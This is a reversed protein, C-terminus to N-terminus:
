ILNNIIKSLEIESLVEPLVMGDPVKPSYIIYFPLGKRGYKEMYDLVERNYSTWDVNILKIDHRQIMEKITTNSFVTVDNFKCTLCWDAGVSLIVTKGEGLYEKIQNTNIKIDKEQENHMENKTFYYYTDVIALAFLILLISFIIRNFYSITKLRINREFKKVEISDLGMKRFWLAFLFLSLYAIMRLSTGLSTQASLVSVLWILTLFLM